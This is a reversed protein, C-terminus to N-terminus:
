PSLKFWYSQGRIIKFTKKNLTKHRDTKILILSSNSNGIVCLSGDELFEGIDGTCFWRKGDIEIFDEKTKEPMNLYGASVNTGGILIEGQPRKNM